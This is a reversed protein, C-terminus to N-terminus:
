QPARCTRLLCDERRRSATRIRTPCHLQIRLGNVACTNKERKRVVQLFENSLHINILVLGAPIIATIASAM